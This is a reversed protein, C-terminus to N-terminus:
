SPGLLKIPVGKPEGQLFEGAVGAAVADGDVLGKFFCATYEAYVVGRVIADNIPSSRLRSVCNRGSRVPSLVVQYSAARLGNSWIFSLRAVTWHAKAIGATRVM